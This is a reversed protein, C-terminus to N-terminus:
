NRYRGRPEGAGVAKAIRVRGNARGESLLVGPAVILTLDASSPEGARLSASGVASIGAADVDINSLDVGGAAFRFSGAGRAQGFQSDGLLSFKGDEGNAASQLSLTLHAARLPLVPLDIVGLDATLDATPHGLTGGVGGGGKAAGDIELPGIEMPGRATWGLALRLGGDGGIHGNANVAGAAGDLNASALDVSGAQYEGRARLRPAGGLLRDLEVGLGTALREGKADFSFSWPQGGSGQSATWDAKVM